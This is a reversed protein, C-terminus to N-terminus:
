GLHLGGGEALTVPQGVLEETVMAAMTAPDSTTAWARDGTPTLCAALGTAPAGARDYMVTCSELTAPGVHDEAARRRPLADVESQPNAWRFGAAPPASSYVGLAHKTLFGGNATCLGFSGPEERLRGVLAAIGHLAYANWPGGAFSMGGTVTLPRDLGLGLEHAAVQVASPFCSYLDVPGLEDAGVGALAHLAAGALRIAPSSVLDARDS